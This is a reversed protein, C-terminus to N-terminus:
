SGASAQRRGTKRNENLCLYHFDEREKETDKVTHIHTRTHTNKHASSCAYTGAVGLFVLNLLLKGPSDQLQQVADSLALRRKFQFDKFM